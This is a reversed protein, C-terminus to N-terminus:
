KEKAQHSPPYFQPITDQVVNKSNPNYLENKVKFTTDLRLFGVKFAELNM